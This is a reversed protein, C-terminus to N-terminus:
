EHRLAVVPDVRMARRAPIACGLTAAIILVLSVTIFTIPDTPSIDLLLGRIVRTIGFAAVLGVGLGMALQRMGQTFVLALVNASTAGMALRIGIEQTRQNVSNAIVAYLGVSALLLAIGAFIAFLGGFVRYPWNQLRLREDLTQLAFVPLDADIAQVQRRFAEGLSEPPVHTRALVAMGLQPEQRFPIYVLPDRDRQSMQSQAIDSVVGVITVWAQPTDNKMFRLRRGIPDQGPWSRAAFKQNVVAVPVGAVGDSSTFARGLIPRVDLAAFYRADITLAGTTPRTRSDVPPTGEIEYPRGMAGQLPLNSAIAAAQVGPLAELSATLREFFAVQDNRSYKAEPLFLRMTLVSSTNVGLNARYINLFSRIMLGAGALLVVALAMETVVLIGSLYKGRAGASSGRGGDKLATNVDLQALRLAPALGFLIGTGITIAALYALVRYDMSFDIYSPKGTGAVAADFARVGWLSLLWGLAGGVISVMVSEVLLQRIVRWRGAGLAVRVSIERSRTVARALQMNAVNACAILLVFGVAGLLALFILKLLGEGGMHYDNFNQIKAGVDKNTISYETALRRAVITIEANASALSAHDALRGFVLLERNGRKEDNGILPTWLDAEEPFNMGRAMVGVIVTPVENVRITKGIVNAKGYRNEWVQYALIAVSPAGPHADAATFDRGQLPKQGIVSFGNVTMSSGHLLEPLSTQDSVNVATVNAAGLAEFSKVQDRFDRYDPYSIGRAQRPNTPNTSTIYFIRDSQDFPLNKFASRHM